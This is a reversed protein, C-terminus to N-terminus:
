TWKLVQWFIWGGLAMYVFAFSLAWRRPWRALWDMALLIFPLTAPFLYRAPTFFGWTQNFPVSLARTVGFFVVGAYFAYVALIWLLLFVVVRNIEKRWVLGITSIIIIPLFPWGLTAPRIWLQIHEVLTRLIAGFTGEAVWTQTGFPVETAPNGKWLFWRDDPSPYAYGTDILSGFAAINYAFLGAVAILGGMTFALLYFWRWRKTQRFFQQQWIFLFYGGLAAAPLANVNRVVVALGATLGAAFLLLWTIHQKKFFNRNPENPIASKEPTSAAQKRKKKRRKPKIKQLPK